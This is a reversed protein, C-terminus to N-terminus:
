FIRELTIYCQDKVLKVLTNGDMLRTVFKLQASQDTSQVIFVGSLSVLRENPTGKQIQCLAFDISSIWDFVSGQAGSKFQPRAGITALISGTETGNSAYLITYHVKWYGPTPLDIEARGNAFDGFYNAPQAPQSLVTMGFVIDSPTKADDSVVMDANPGKITGFAPSFGSWELAGNNPNSLSLHQGVAGQASPFSLDYPTTAASGSLGIGSGGGLVLKQQFTKTGGFSQIDNNVLGAVVNPGATPIQLKLNSTSSDVALATGSNEAQLQLPGSKGNLSTVSVGSSFQVWTQPDQGITGESSCVWATDQHSTGKSAFVAVNTFVAGTLFDAPRQWNGGTDVVWLGNQDPPVQAILLVRDGSNLNIGDVATAGSPPSLLPASSVALVPAKWSLGNVKGDVYDKSAADNGLTPLDLGTVKTSTVSTLVHVSHARVGGTPLFLAIDGVPTNVDVPVNNLSKTFQTSGKFEIDRDGISNGLAFVGSSSLSGEGTMNNVASGGSSGGILYVDFTAANGDPSTGVFRYTRSHYRKITDRTGQSSFSNAPKLTLGSPFELTVSHDSLNDNSFTIEFFRGYISFNLIGFAYQRLNAATPVTDLRDQMMGSRSIRGNLAGSIHAGTYTVDQDGTVQVISM